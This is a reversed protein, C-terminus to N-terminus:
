GNESRIKSLFVSGNDFRNKVEYGPLQGSQRVQEWKAWGPPTLGPMHLGVSLYLQDLSLGYRQEFFALSDPDTPLIVTRADQYWALEWGLNTGVLKSRDIFKSLSQMNALSHEVMGSGRGTFSQRTVGAWVSQIGSKCGLVFLLSLFAVRVGLNAFRFKQLFSDVLGLLYIFVLPAFFGYYRPNNSFLPQLLAFIFFLWLIQRDLTKLRTRTVLFIIFFIWNVLFSGKLYKVALFGPYKLMFELLSLYYFHYAAHSDPFLPTQNAILMASGTHLFPNGSIKYMHWLWPLIVLGLAALFCAWNRWKRTPDIKYIFVLVVPVFIMATHRNLYFLGLALGSGILMSPSIRFTFLYVLLLTFFISALETMGSISYKLIYPFFIFFLSALTAVLRNFRQRAILYVLPVSLFYFLGSSLSIGFNGTGVILFLAAMVLIPFPFNYITEWSITGPTTKSLYELQTPILCKTQFGNGQAVEKAVVGFSYADPNYLARDSQNQYFFSWVLVSFLFFLIVLLFDRLTFFSVGM